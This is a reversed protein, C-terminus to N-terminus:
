ERKHTIEFKSTDYEYPNAEYGYGYVVYLKWGNAMDQAVDEISPLLVHDNYGRIRVYYKSYLYSGNVGSYSSPYGKEITIWPSEGKQWIHKEKSSTFLGGPKYLYIDSINGKDFGVIKASGDPLDWPIDTEFRLSVEEGDIFIRRMEEETFIISNYFHTQKSYRYLESDGDKGNLWGAIYQGSSSYSRNRELFGIHGSDESFRLYQNQAGALSGVYLKDNYRENPNERDYVGAGPLLHYCHLSEHYITGDRNKTIFFRGYGGGGETNFRTVYRYPNLTISYPLVGSTHGLFGDDRAAVYWVCNTVDTDRTAHNFIDAAAVQLWDTGGGVCLGPGTGSEADVLVSMIDCYPRGEQTAPNVTGDIVFRGPNDTYNAGPEPIKKWGMLGIKERMLDANDVNTKISFNNLAYLERDGEDSLKIVKLPLDVQNTNWVWDKVLIVAPNHGKYLMVTVDSSYEIGNASSVSAMAAKASPIGAEGLAYYFGKWNSSLFNRGGEGPNKFSVADTVDNIGYIGEDILTPIDVRIKIRVPDTGDYLGDENEAAITIFSCEGYNDGYNEDIVTKRSDYYARVDVGDSFHASISKSKDMYVMLTNAKADAPDVDGSWGRFSWGSKAKPYLYVKDGDYYGTLSRTVVGGGIVTVNLEYYSSHAIPSAEASTSMVRSDLQITITVAMCCVVMAAFIIRSILTKM